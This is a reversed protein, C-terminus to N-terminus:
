NQFIPIEDIIGMEYGKSISKYHHSIEKQANQQWHNHAAVYNNSLWKDGVGKQSSISSGRREHQKFDSNLYKNM